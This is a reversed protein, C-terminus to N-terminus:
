PMLKKKVIGEVTGAKGVIYEVIQNLTRLEALEQPNVGQISPNSATMAGFIEVRKISDIGLDAELDMGLELMEAPYGTKEAIVELLSAEIETTSIGSGANTSVPAPPAVAVPTSTVPAAPTNTAGAKGAIYEVIQNLTRLEALEQPNVGQISPNSATMAGFIEVRKISDIGLDAELDMGLELMEAPYGTKEAIVELLSAEIETTSIGSGANTSVPAPPAVAVPTSTVPAAPTNTAGAKGVIYEVIQNLTRLEALEQPNVGQISPNSATMAGFIEVRKISDIGLDAELDMGLELMEAPYGTKEAIVELLSAEIETTSIGSGANTSVPAPPAVAVPTSTVPAAPTNTAGAKGVIYEVIQNLTRLEALEQPNVGQISPNSATMAGFIEVRKISDIGLDAELDMGLELMEAPYGTKEAIVELLSAEIETTSISFTNAVLTPTAVAPSSSAVVTPTFQVKNGNTNTLSQGNTHGNGNTSVPIEKKSTKTQGKKWDMLMGEIRNQQSALRQMEVQINNLIAKEDPTMEIDKQNPVNQFTGFNNTQLTKQYKQQTAKSVHNYGSIRVNLKGKTPKAIEPAQFSDFNQVSMGLVALQVVGERFQKDSNKSPNPNLAIAEFPRDGLIEKVLKTLINKPGFEVFTRGGAAYINEIQDKFLVPQLIHNALSQKISEPTNPYATGTTNSYVPKQPIGFAVQNLINAFPAQAHAVFATHFAASVPLMACLMGEAKLQVMLQQLAQTAGGLITQTGSNVNAVEVGQIGAIKSRINQLDGKVAMMSGADLGAQGKMAQGRAKSLTYFGQDDLVGAAWLATLEGYSHGAFFDANFGTTKLLNYMGSSLAGIAPQAHETQNLKQQQAKRDEENFVPIPYIANTLPEQGSSEFQANANEFASRILPFSNALHNGMNIYQSGQGAFLAVTKDTSAGAQKRYGIGLIPHEWNPKQNNEGIMQISTELKKIAEEISSVVFGLRCAIAPIMTSESQQALNKLYKKGEEGQLAALHNRCIQQLAAPNAAHLLIMKNPQHKRYAEKHEPTYEEMAIHVNVGGFGFASVGARRPIDKSKRFWPRTESNIYLPSSEINLKPNPKTVNISGPLIKHHLALAAKILGAVGAAAKTHGIQSKVSGLGVHNLTPDNKGFVMKMSEGESPDGAGTGTGHAEILGVTSADFGAEDYARQMALAQGQPRPAYVSKYRGDSSSGIGKITAYIRDGDCIADDLRKCVVMGVGEGILMGDSEHDFPRISGKRSFAPTKSFSMYMFISNDTDVGGTIMMDCRGEILESLAMKTASLSAACAADVVSNIGGLDFRNAIRGAIVNGLLGPFSDETWPVYADKIKEVVEDIQGEPMGITRLAKKWMPYQLRATLPIILKQGGGVGLIVGTRDKIAQTLRESGPAYGADILADRAVSLGLLQSADTVELINPPLGFEMPNFDIDPLFGGVKCYTKDPAVPDPDYYDEILWRTEPIEKICDVGAIINEWYQELNEADAFISAMGVIAVPNKQLLQDFNSM